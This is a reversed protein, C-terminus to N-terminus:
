SLQVEVVELDDAVLDVAADREDRQIAGVPEVRPGPAHVGLVAPHQGLGLAVVVHPDDDDGARAPREARPGIGGREIPVDLAARIVGSDVRRRQRVRAVAHAGLEIVRKRKM